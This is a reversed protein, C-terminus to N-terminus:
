QGFVKKIKAFLGPKKKLWQQKKGAKAREAVRRQHANMEEVGREFEVTAGEVPTGTWTERVTLAHRAIPSVPQWGHSGSVKEVPEVHCAVSELVTPM